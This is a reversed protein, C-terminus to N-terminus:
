FAGDPLLAIRDENLWLKTQPTAPFHLSLFESIRLLTEPQTHYVAGAEKEPSLRNRNHYHVEMDFGRARRAVAQGIRGMGVIGLRKGTVDRGLMWTPSWAGWQGERLITQMEHGRRAVGLILLMALDATPATVADPTNTVVLGRSAAADLDIQDYGAGFNAVIKVTAPLGMVADANLPESATMLIADTGDAAKMLSALDLITDDPNLRAQYDRELRMEVAASYKRTVLVVHKGM